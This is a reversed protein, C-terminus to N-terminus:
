VTVWSFSPIMSILWGTNNWGLNKLVMMCRYICSMGWSIIIFSNIHASFLVRKHGIHTDFAPMQDPVNLIKCIVCAEVHTKDRCFTATGFLFARGPILSYWFRGKSIKWHFFKVLGLYLGGYTGKKCTYTSALKRRSLASRLSIVTM